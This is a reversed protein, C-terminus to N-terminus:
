YLFSPFIRMECHSYIHATMEVGDKSHLPPLHHIIDPFGSEDWARNSVAREVCAAEHTPPFPLEELPFCRRVGLVPQMMRTVGAPALYFRSSYCLWQQIVHWTGAKLFCVNDWCLFERCGASKARQLHHCPWLFM